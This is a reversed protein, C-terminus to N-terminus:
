ASAPNPIKRTLSAAGLMMLVSPAYFEGITIISILSFIGLGAAALWLTLKGDAANQRIRMVSFLGLGALVVPIALSILVGNGNMQLLTLGTDVQEGNPGATTGSYFPVVLLVISAAVTCVVAMATLIWVWKSIKM